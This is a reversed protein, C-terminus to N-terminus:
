GWGRQFVVVGVPRKFFFCQRDNSDILTEMGPFLVSKWSLYEKVRNPSISCRMRQLM